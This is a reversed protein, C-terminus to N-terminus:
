RIKFVQLSDDNNAVLIYRHSPTKVLELDKVDLPTFFGSKFSPIPTFNGKGDGKLWLGTGADNRATEPESTYINGSLILDLNGDKDVDTSIIDKVASFQAENPLPTATFSSGEKNEIYVSAFTDAQYHWAAELPDEGVVEEITAEAFSEYSRFKENIVPVATGIKAKGYIPYHTGNEDIALFVDFSQNVDFDAAFVEFKKSKSTTYSYNM